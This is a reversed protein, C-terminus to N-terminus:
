RGVGPCGMARVIRWSKDKKNEAYPFNWSGFHGDSAGREHQEQVSLATFGLTYSFLQEGLQPVEQEAEQDVDILKGSWVSRSSSNM